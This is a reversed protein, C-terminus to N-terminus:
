HIKPLENKVFWYSLASANLTGFALNKANLVDFVLFLVEDSMKYALVIQCSSCYGEVLLLIRWGISFFKPRKKNEKERRIIFYEEGVRMGYYREWDRRKKKKMM